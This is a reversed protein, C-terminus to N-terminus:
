HRGISLHEDIGLFRFPSFCYFRPMHDNYVLRQGGGSGEDEEKKRLNSLLSQYSFHLRSDIDVYGSISCLM